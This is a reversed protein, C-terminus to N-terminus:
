NYYFCVCLCVCMYVSSTNRNPLCDYQWPWELDDTMNKSSRCSLSRRKWRIWTSVHSKPLSLTPSCSCIGFIPIGDQTSLCVFGNWPGIEKGGAIYGDSKCLKASLWSVPCLWTVSTPAAFLPTSPANHIWGVRRDTIFKVWGVMLSASSGFVDFQLHEELIKTVGIEFPIAYLTIPALIRKTYFITCHSASITKWLQTWIDTAIDM